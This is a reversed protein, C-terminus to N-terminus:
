FEMYLGRHDYLWNCFFPQDNIIWSRDAETVETRNFFHWSAIFFHVHVHYPKVVDAAFDLFGHTKKNLCVIDKWSSRGSQLFSSDFAGQLYRCLGNLTNYVESFTAPMLWSRSRMNKYLWCPQTCTMHGRCHNPTKHLMPRHACNHLLNLDRAISSPLPLTTYHRRLDIYRFMSSNGNCQKEKRLFSHLGRWVCWIVLPNCNWFPKDFCIKFDCWGGSGWPVTLRLDNRWDGSVKKLYQVRLACWIYFCWIRFSSVSVCLSGGLADRTGETAAYLDTRGIACCRPSALCVSSPYVTPANIKQPFHHSGPSEFHGKWGRTSPWKVGQFPWKVMGFLDSQIVLFMIPFHNPHVM